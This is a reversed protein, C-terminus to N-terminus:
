IKWFELLTVGEEDYPLYAVERRGSYRKGDPCIGSQFNFEVQICQDGVRGPIAQRKLKWSMTANKMPGHTAKSGNDLRSIVAPLAGYPRGGTTPLNIAGSSSWHQEVGDTWFDLPENDEEEDDGDGAMDADENEDHDEGIEGQGFESHSWFAM